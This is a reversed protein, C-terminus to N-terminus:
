QSKVINTFINQSCNNNQSLQIKKMRIQEPTGTLEYNIGNINVIETIINNIHSSQTFTPGFINQGIHPTNTFSPGIKGTVPNYFNIRVPVQPAQIHPQDYINLKYPLLGHPIQSTPYRSHLFLGGEQTKDQTKDKSHM